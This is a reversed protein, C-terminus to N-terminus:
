YASQNAPKQSTDSRISSRVEIKTRKGGFIASTDTVFIGPMTEVVGDMM